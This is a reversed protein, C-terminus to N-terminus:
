RNIYFLKRLLKDSYQQSIKFTFMPKINRVKPCMRVALVLIGAPIIMNPALPTATLLSKTM